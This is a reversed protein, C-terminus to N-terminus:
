TAVVVFDESYALIGLLCFELLCVSFERELVVRILLLAIVGHKLINCLCVCHEGIRFFALNIIAKSFFAELSTHGALLGVVHAAHAAHSTHSTHSAALAAEGHWRFKCFVEESLKKTATLAAKSAARSHTAALAAASEDEVRSTVAHAAHAAHATAKSTKSHVTHIDIKICVRLAAMVREALLLMLTLALLRGLLPRCNLLVECNGEFIEEGTCRLFELNCAFEVIAGTAAVCISGLDDLELQLRLHLLASLEGKLVETGFFGTILWCVHDEFELFLGMLDKSALAIIEVGCDVDAKLIGKDAAVSDDFSQVIMVNADRVSREAFGLLLNDQALATHWVCFGPYLSVQNHAEINFKRLFGGLASLKGLMQLSSSSRAILFWVM